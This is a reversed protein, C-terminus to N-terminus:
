IRVDKLFNGTKNAPNGFFVPYDIVQGLSNTWGLKFNKSNSIYTCAPQSYGSTKINSYVKVRFCIYGKDIGLDRLSNINVFSPPNDKKNATTTKKKSSSKKKAAKKKAKKKAVASTQQSSKATTKAFSYTPNIFGALSFFIFIYVLTRALKVPSSSTM